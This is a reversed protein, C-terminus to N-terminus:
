TYRGVRLAKPRTCVFMPNAELELTVFQNRDRDPIVRYYTELGPTNVFEFDETPSGYQEFMGDIGSVHLLIKGAPVAVGSGGRYRRWHIGGWHFDVLDIGRQSAIDGAHMYAEMVDKHTTLHNWSTNDCWAEVAITGPVLGGLDDEMSQVLEQCKKKLAGKTPSTNDLDFDIEAAPSIGFETYWNYVISGDKPNKVLGQIANLMHYEFTLEADARLKRSRRAVEAQVQQFESEEGFARIGSVETAWLTDSKKFHRTRFDRYEREEGNTNAQTAPGGPESFPILTLVGDRSEIGFQRTRIGRYEFIGAARLHGPRYPLTELGRTLEMMSFADNQFVNMHAM